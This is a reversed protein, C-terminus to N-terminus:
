SDLGLTGQSTAAGAVHERQLCSDAAQGRGPTHVTVDDLAAQLLGKASDLQRLYAEQNRREIALQPNWDSDELDILFSGSQRWSLNSFTLYYRSKRGFVQELFGLTRVVWRTHTASFGSQHSLFPIEDILAKLEATASDQTWHFM